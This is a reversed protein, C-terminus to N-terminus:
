MPSGIAAIAADLSSAASSALSRISTSYSSSGATKSGRSAIFGSAGIM